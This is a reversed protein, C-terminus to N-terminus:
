PARDAGALIGRRWGQEIEEIVPKPRRRVHQLARPESQLVTAGLLHDESAQHVVQEAAPKM